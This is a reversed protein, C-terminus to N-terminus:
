LTQEETEISCTHKIIHLGAQPSRTSTILVIQIHTYIHQIVMMHRWWQLKVEIYRYYLLKLCDCRLLLFHHLFFFLKYVVFVAIPQQLGCYFILLLLLLLVAHLGGIHMKHQLNSNNSQSKIYTHLVYVTINYARHPHVMTRYRQTPLLSLNCTYFRLVVLCVVSVSIYIYLYSYKEGNEGM